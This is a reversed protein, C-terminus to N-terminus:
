FFYLWYQDLLQEDDDDDHLILNVFCSFLFYHM